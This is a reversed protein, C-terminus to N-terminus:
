LTVTLQLKLGLIEPALQAKVGPAITFGVEAEGTFM